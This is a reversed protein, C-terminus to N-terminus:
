EGYYKEGTLIKWGKRAFRHEIESIIGFKFLLLASVLVGATDILVDCVSGNRTPVLSQHYEDSAAYLISILVSIILLLTEILISADFDKRLEFERMKTRVTWLLSRYVLIMLVAFFFAHAFKRLIKDLDTAVVRIEPQASLFYILGAWAITTIWYYVLILTRKKM